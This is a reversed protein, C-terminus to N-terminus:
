KNEKKTWESLTKEYIVNWFLRRENWNYNRACEIVGDSLERFREPQAILQNLSTALDDLIEDYLKLQIKIGCKNCIVDHMGCHDLSITPVGFSMAEWITTPNGESVSTIINLVSRSIILLVEERPINGHWHM